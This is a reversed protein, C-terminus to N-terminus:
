LLWPTVAHAAAQARLRRRLNLFRVSPPIISPHMERAWPAVSVYAPSLWAASANSSVLLNRICIQSLAPFRLQARLVLNPTEQELGLRRVQEVSMVHVICDGYDLCEWPSNGINNQPQREYKEIGMKEIRGLAAMLQPKSFVSCFVM